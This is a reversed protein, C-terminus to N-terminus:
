VSIYPNNKFNSFVTILYVRNKTYTSMVGTSIVIMCHTRLKKLTYAEM